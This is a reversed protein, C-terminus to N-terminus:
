MGYIRAYLEFAVKAKMPEKDTQQAHLFLSTLNIMWSCV